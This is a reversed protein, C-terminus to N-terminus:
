KKMADAKEMAAPASVSASSQMMTGTAAVPAAPASMVSSSVPAPTPAPTVEKKMMLPNTCAAFLLSAGLVALTKKSM